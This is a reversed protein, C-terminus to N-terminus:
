HNSKVREVFVHALRRRLSLIGLFAPEDAAAVTWGVVVAAALGIPQIRIGFAIDGVLSRRMSPLIARRRLDVNM